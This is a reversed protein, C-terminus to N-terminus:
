LSEIHVKMHMKTTMKPMKKPTRPGLSRWWSATLAIGSCIWMAKLLKMFITGIYDFISIFTHGLENFEVNPETSVVCTMHIFAGVFIALVMSFLIWQWAKM